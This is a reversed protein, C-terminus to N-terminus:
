RGNAVGTVCPFTRMSSLLHTLPFTIGRWAVRPVIYPRTSIPNVSPAALLAEDELLELEELELLEEELELELELLEELEEELLEDLELELLLLELEEDELLEEEEELLELLLEELDLEDWDTM